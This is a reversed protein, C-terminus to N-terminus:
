VSPMLPSFQHSLPSYNGKQLVHWLEEYFKYDNAHVTNFFKGSGNVFRMAKPNSAKDLPYIKLGTRWMNSAHDPKGDELFGRLILWQTYSRSQAIWAKQQKGAIEVTARTDKDRDAMGNSTPKLPGQYEPPLIIYIGGKKADPGPAGM